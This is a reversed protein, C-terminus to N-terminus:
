GGPMVEAVKIRANTLRDAQRSEMGGGLAHWLDCAVQAERGAGRIGLSAGPHRLHDNTAWTRVVDQLVDAAPSFEYADDGLVNPAHDAITRWQGMAVRQLLDLAAVVVARTEADIIMAVDAM